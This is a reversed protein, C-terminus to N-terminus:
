SQLSTPFLFQHSQLPFEIGVINNIHQMLTNTTQRPLYLLHQIPFQIVEKRNGIKAKIFGQKNFNYNQKIQNRCLLELIEEHDNDDYKMLFKKM